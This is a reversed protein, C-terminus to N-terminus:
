LRQLFRLLDKKQAPSLSEPPGGPFEPPHVPLAGVTPIGPLIFRSYTDVAEALTAHSNDHFYPATRAIGRLSPVDFAEFEAPDGSILARGPDTSYWQAALAPGVIPAGHEDLAPNIDDPDGSATVPIPPLDTVAHQRTGDTYFRFRYQPFDVSTNFLPVVGRQGLYTMYAYGANLFESHPRPVRVPEPPAGPTVTYQINGDPKLAYFLADHTARNVIRNRTRDGHCAECALDYVDRGRRESADLLLLADPDPIASLPWGRELLESVFRARPSSFVGREFAAIRQLVAPAVTGGESHSTVASQAQTVLDTERGDSQFPGSFGTDAISPVARWVSVKRDPATIVNGQVDIVDMNAPLPLVVRVLGKKLHEYTPVPAAPDDADIRNFLPDAPNRAWLAEVHAPTLATDDAFVHCTACSRRNTGPLAEQFHKRGAAVQAVSALEAESTALAATAEVSGATDTCGVLTTLAFAGLTSAIFRHGAM